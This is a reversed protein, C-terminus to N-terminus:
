PATATPKRVYGMSLLKELVKVVGNAQTGKAFTLMTNDSKTVSTTTTNAAESLATDITMTKKWSAESVTKLTHPLPTTPNTIVIEWSQGAGTLSTPALFGLGSKPFQVLRQPGKVLETLSMAVPSEADAVLSTGGAVEVQTKLTTGPITLEHTTPKLDLKPITNYDGVSTEKTSFYKTSGSIETTVTVQTFALLNEVTPMQRIHYNTVTAKSKVVKPLVQTTAPSTQATLNKNAVEKYIVVREQAQTALSGLQLLSLSAIAATKASFNKM